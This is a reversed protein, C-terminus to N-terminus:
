NHILKEIQPKHHHIHEGFFAVAQYANLKGAIPHKYILKNVQADPISELLQKLSSRLEDWQKTLEDLSLAEPTKEVVVKPAKFKLLPLRQSIKLIVFRFQSGFGANDLQDIVQLKKKMYGVSLSEATLIHTLVQAVSWAGPAPSYSFKEVSLPQVQKLLAVRQAEIREFIQQLSTNV